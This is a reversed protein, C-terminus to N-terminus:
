EIETICKQITAGDIHELGDSFVALLARDCIINVMRPTGQSHEFIINLADETFPPVSQEENDTAIKLRHHIYASM